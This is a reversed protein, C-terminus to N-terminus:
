NDFVYKFFQGFGASFIHICLVLVTEPRVGGPSVMRALVSQLKAGGREWCQSHYNNEEEPVRKNEEAQRGDKTNACAM